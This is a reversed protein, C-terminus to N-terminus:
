TELRFDLDHIRYAGLLCRREDATTHLVARHAAPPLAARAVRHIPAFPDGPDGLRVTRANHLFLSHLGVLLARERIAEALPATAALASLRAAGGAAVLASLLAGHVEAQEVIDFDGLSALDTLDLDIPFLDAAGSRESEARAAFPLQWPSFLAPRRVGLVLRTLWGDRLADPPLALVPELLEPELKLARFRSRMGATKELAALYRRRLSLNESVLGQHIQFSRDLGKRIRSLQDLRRRREAVEAFLDSLKESQVDIARKVQKFLKKEEGLQQKVESDNTDVESAPISVPDRRIRASLIDMRRRQMGCATALRDLSGLAREFQGREIQRLLLLLEIEVTLFHDVEHLRYFLDLGQETLLYKLEGEHERYLVLRFEAAAVGPEAGHYAHFTRSYARGQSAANTLTDLVEDLYGRRQGPTTPFYGRGQEYWAIAAGIERHLAERTAGGEGTEMRNLIAKLLLVAIELRGLSGLDRRADSAWLELLPGFRLIQELRRAFGNILDPEPAPPREAPASAQRAEVRAFADRLAAESMAQLRAIEFRQRCLECRDLHGPAPAEKAAPEVRLLTVMADFTLHAALDTM